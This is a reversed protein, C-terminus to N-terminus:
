PKPTNIATDILFQNKKALLFQAYIGRCKLSKLTKPTNFASLLSYLFCKWYLIHDIDLIDGQGGLLYLCFSKIKFLPGKQGFFIPWLNGQMELKKLNQPILHV